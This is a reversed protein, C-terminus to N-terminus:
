QQRETELKTRNLRQSQATRDGAQRPGAIYTLHRVRAVRLLKTEFAIGSRADQGEGVEAHFGDVLEFYDVHGDGYGDGGVAGADV